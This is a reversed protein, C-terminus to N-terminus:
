LEIPKWGPLVQDEAAFVPLNRVLRISSNLYFFALILNSMADVINTSLLEAPQSITYLVNLAVGILLVSGLVFGAKPRATARWWTRPPLVPERRGRFSRVGGFVFAFFLLGSLVGAIPKPVSLLLILQNAFYLLGYGVIIYVFKWRKKRIRLM